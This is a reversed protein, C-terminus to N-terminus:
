GGIKWWPLPGPGTECGHFHRLSRSLEARPDTPPARTPVTQDSWSGRLPTPPGTRVRCDPVSVSERGIRRPPGPGANPVQHRDLRPSVLAGTWTGYPLSIRSAPHEPQVAPRAPAHDAPVVPSAIRASCAQAVGRPGEHGGRGSTSRKWTAKKPAVLLHKALSRTSSANTM